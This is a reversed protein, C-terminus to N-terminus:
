IGEGGRTIEVLHAIGPISEKQLTTTPSLLAGTAMFLVKKVKGAKIMPLIHSVLVCGSCGAGSAGAQVNRSNPPYILLGCDYHNFLNIGEKQMLQKLLTSGVQGLDGTYIRDYDEPSTGTQAFFSYLTHAAAPAMAAGMNNADKIGLDQVRGVAARTIVAGSGSKEILVNAAGTVTWQATPTRKGGYDLPTRFQREATCFHSGACALANEAFGGSVMCARLVIAQSMTSCANYLGLFPMDFDRMAFATSTIQDCLDGGLAVGIDQRTFGRKKLTFRLARKQMESEAKEWSDMGFYDDGSIQDFGNKFPSEGEKKGGVCSAATIFVPNKFDIVRSM